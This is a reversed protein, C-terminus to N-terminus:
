IDDFDDFFSQQGDDDSPIDGSPATPTEPADQEAEATLSGDDTNDNGGGLNGGNGGDGDDDKNSKKSTKRSKSKTKGGKEEIKKKLLDLYASSDSKASALDVTNAANDVVRDINASKDTIMDIFTEDLLADEFHLYFINCCEKQGSRCIRDEVQIMNAPTWDFDCIVMNHAKTLTVGVGGAITNLCCVKKAGSQFDDIAQQKAKDSMGGRICCADDGFKAMLKDMTDDFQTVIVVSEDADTFSEALDIASAVKCESLLRRGTMALGMYTDGDDMNMLRKEIAKYERPLPADLPIFQRQKTLHPLVESKLRRVMYQSLMDHLESVNSSGNYDWGFSNNYANCFEKGFRHFAYPENPNIEGLMCLENFLDKNRTPMPTGTMLYTYKMSDALEMIARARQSSPKGMNNVAKCNHAEDVFMCSIQSEDKILGTFKVATAYGMVTWDKGFRPEKDKSYVVSIDAGKHTRELERQWNLRLSEPCVVLKRDNPLSMGMLTAIFTKGCGMDHGLMGRKKGILMEADQVQFPYPTFPLEVKSLDLLHNGSKNREQKMDVGKVASVDFGKGECYAILKPLMARNTSILTKDPYTKADVFKLAKGKLNWLEQTVRYDNVNLEMIDFGYSNTEGTSTLKVSSAVSKNMDEIMTGKDDAISKEAGDPLKFGCSGLMKADKLFLEIKDVPVTFGTTPQGQFNFKAWSGGYDRPNFGDVCEGFGLVAQHGRIGYFALDKPELHLEGLKELDDLLAKPAKYGIAGFDKADKLFDNINKVPITFGKAQENTEDNVFTAWRGGYNYPNVGNVFEAFGLKAYGNEIGYYRLDRPEFDDRDHESCEKARNIAREQAYEQPYKQVFLEKYHALSEEIDDKYETLLTKKYKNLTSLAVCCEEMSMEVNLMGIFFMRNWDPKNYGMDDREIPMGRGIMQRNLMAIQNPTLVAM